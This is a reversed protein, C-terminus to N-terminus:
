SQLEENLHTNGRHSVVTTTSVKSVKLGPWQAPKKDHSAAEVSTETDTRADGGDGGPKKAVVGHKSGKPCSRM